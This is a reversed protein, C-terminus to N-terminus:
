AKCGHAAAAISRLHRLYHLAAPIQHHSAKATRAPWAVMKCTRKRRQQAWSPAREGVPQCLSMIGRVSMKIFVVGCRLAWWIWRVCQEMFASAMFRLLMLLAAAVTLAPKAAEKIKNRQRARRAPHCRQSRQSRCVAKVSAEQANCSKACPAVADSQTWGLEALEDASFFAWVGGGTDVSGRQEAAHANAREREVRHRALMSEKCEVLCPITRRQQREEASPQLVRVKGPGAVELYYHMHAVM